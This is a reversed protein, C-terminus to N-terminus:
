WRARRLLDAAHEPAIDNLFAGMGSESGALYKLKDPARRVSLVEAHLAFLDRGESVPAQHWGAIYPAPGDFLRDFRRLVDVYV